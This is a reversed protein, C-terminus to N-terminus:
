DILTFGGSLSVRVARRVVIKREKGYWTWDQGQIEYGPGTVFLSSEGSAESKAFDVHARPSRIRNDEELAAGGQYSILDMGEILAAEEGLYHGRFGRLEWSKYGDEGFMPLTFHEIPADPVMQGLLWVAPFGAAMGLSLVLLRRMSRSVPM